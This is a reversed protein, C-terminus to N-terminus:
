NAYISKDKNKKLLNLIEWAKTVDKCGHFMHYLVNHMGTAKIPKDEIYNSIYEFYPDYIPAFWNKVNNKWLMVNLVTEDWCSNIQKKYTLGVDLCQKIFPICNQSFIIHAHIYPNTKEAVGMLQMVGSQNNPDEPHIPSLPYKGIFRCLSFLDDVRYNVIDDSEIYIGNEVESQLIINFKEFYILPWKGMLEDDIRRKILRPYKINDFPIDDNIGYAVIPRTSFEHVSAITVELLPFYNKTAFTVFAENIKEAKVFNISLILSFILYYNKFM